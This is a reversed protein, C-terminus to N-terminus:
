CYIKLLILTMSPHLLLRTSEHHLVLYLPRNEGGPLTMTLLTEDPLRVSTLPWSDWTPRAARYLLNKVCRQLHQEDAFLNSIVQIRGEYVVAVDAANSVMLAKVPAERLLIELPGAGVVEDIVRQLLLQMEEKSRIQRAQELDTRLLALLRRRLATTSPFTAPVSHSPPVPRFERRLQESLKQVLPWLRHGPILMTVPAQRHGDKGVSPRILPFTPVEEYAITHGLRAPAGGDNLWADDEATDATNELM